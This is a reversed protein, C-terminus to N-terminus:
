IKNKGEKTGKYQPLFIYVASLAIYAIIFPYYKAIYDLVGALRTLDSFTIVALVVAGAALILVAGAASDKAIKALRCREPSIIDVMAEVATNLLEGVMVLCIVLVLPALQAANAGYVRAFWIVSIAAVTHIRFNTENRLANLIGSLAFGFSKLLKM